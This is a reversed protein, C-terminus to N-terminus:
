NSKRKIAYKNYFIIILGILFGIYEFIDHKAVDFHLPKLINWASLGICMYILDKLWQKEIHKVIFFMVLIEFLDRGVFYLYDSFNQVNTLVRICIAFLILRM